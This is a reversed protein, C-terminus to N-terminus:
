KMLGAKRLEDKLAPLNPKQNYLQMILERKEIEFGPIKETLKLWRAIREYVNRGRQNEITNITKNKINQFCFEPYVTLIPSILEIYHWNDQNKQVIERINEYLKEVELISVVFAKDWDVEELLNNLDAESLYERIKKYHSIEKEDVTLQCFVNIYLENDLDFSVYDKLFKAWVRKDSKFLEDATQVFSDKDADFYYQLLQKAVETNTLYFQKASYLWESTNGALKNLLLVLEPVAPREITSKDIISLIQNPDTSKEALAILLHEFYGVFHPNGQYEADCYEVFKEIAAVITRESLASLNLKEIISDMTAQFESLLYENIDEFSSVEDEIEADQTAEYLGILMAILEDPKQGIIKNLAESSFAEFIEEFEQESAYQYAEWDEIYGSRPAHYNEWDPNETDVMEFDDKYKKKTSTLIEMFSSTPVVERVNKESQIFNVFENQLTSNKRIIANLFKLKLNDDSNNYLQEFQM